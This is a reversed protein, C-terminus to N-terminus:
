RRSTEGKRGDYEDVIRIPSDFTTGPRIKSNEEIYSERKPYFQTGYPCKQTTGLM